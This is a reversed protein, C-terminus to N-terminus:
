ELDFEVGWIIRGPVRQGSRTQAQYAAFLDTELPCAMAAGWASCTPIGLIAASTSYPHLPLTLTTAAQALHAAILRAAEPDRAIFMRPKDPAASHVRVYGIIEEGLEFVQAQIAPNPSLWDLLVNGPESSFDVNAEEHRWITQLAPLDAEVPNRATIPTRPLNEVAIELSAIGYAHTQYGFNPYYTEHGLLFSLAYGQEQAVRHGERILAGGIGRGQEAPEVAIPALNVARMEQGMLRITRPSFLVHGVIRGNQEAVLSLQPDFAARQRHLAVVIAEFSRQGFARVHLAAITAYDSPTEPRINM